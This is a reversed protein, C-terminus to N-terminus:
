RGAPLAWEVNEGEDQYDLRGPVAGKRMEFPVYGTVCKNPKILGVQTLDPRMGSGAQDPNGAGGGPVVLMLTQWPVGTQSGASGACFCMNAAAVRRWPFSTAGVPRSLGVFVDDHEPLHRRWGLHERNASPSYRPLPTPRSLRRGSGSLRLDDSPDRSAGLIDPLTCADVPAALVPAV